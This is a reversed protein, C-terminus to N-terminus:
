VLKLDYKLMGGNPESDVSYGHFTLLERLNDKDKYFEKVQEETAYYDFLNNVDSLYYKKGEGKFIPIENDIVWKSRGTVEDAKRICCSGRKYKAPYNNWNVGKELM